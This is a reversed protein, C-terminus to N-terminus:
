FLRKLHKIETKEMVSQGKYLEGDKETCTHVHERKEIFGQLMHHSRMSTM